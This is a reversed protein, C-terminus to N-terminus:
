RSRLAQVKTFRRKQVMRIESMHAVRLHINDYFYWSVMAGACALQELAHEGWTMNNNQGM